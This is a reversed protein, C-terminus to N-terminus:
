RLENKLEEIQKQQEILESKQKEIEKHQGILYLTLEEIKKLLLANMEGVNIGKEIVEKGSPIEPLHKNDKIFDELNKLSALHYNDEFM